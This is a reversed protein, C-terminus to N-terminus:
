ILGRREFVRVVDAAGAARARDIARLGSRDRCDADAGLDLLVGVSTAHGHSASLMLLSDGQPNTSNVGVGARVARDVMDADGARAAELAVVVLDLYGAAM